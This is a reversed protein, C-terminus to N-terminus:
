RCPSLKVVVLLLDASRMPSPLGRQHTPDEGLDLAMESQLQPPIARPTLCHPAVIELPPCTRQSSSLPEPQTARQLCLGLKTARCNGWLRCSPQLTLVPFSRLRQRLLM